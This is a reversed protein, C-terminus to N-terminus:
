RLFQGTKKYRALLAEKTRRPDAENVLFYEEKYFPYDALYDKTDDIKDLQRIDFGDQEGDEWMMAARPVLFDCEFGDQDTFVRISKIKKRTLM